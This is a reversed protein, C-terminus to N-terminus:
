KSFKEKLISDLKTGKSNVKIKKNPIDENELDEGEEESMDDFHSDDFADMNFVREPKKRKRVSKSVPSTEIGLGIGTELSVSEPDFNENKDFETEDVLTNYFYKSLQEDNNLTNEDSEELLGVGQGQLLKRPVSKRGKRPSKSDPSSLVQEVSSSDDMENHVRGSSMENLFNVAQEEMDETSEDLGHKVKKHRNLNGKLTFTSGCFCSYPKTDNHMHLHGQLNHLRGFQKGCFKCQFPKTKSHVVQHAKLTQPQTFTKGCVECKFARTANHILVHRMMNAKQNFSRGCIDCAFPKQGSHTFQHAKLHHEKMFDMGCETCIYPRSGEHTIMHDKLQSPYRFVKGCYKCILEERKEHLVLHLKLAKVSDFEEGCEDCKEIDSNHKEKHTRLESPYAFGRGCIDCIYPRSELHVTQHRKLHSIQTFEKGCITCVHPKINDHTLMHTNLHSLQKFYKGCVMCLHPKIGNHDLIHTILNHKTTYSKSCLQCQWRKQEGNQILQSDLIQVNIEMRDLNKHLEEDNDAEIAKLKEMVHYYTKKQETKSKTDEDDSPDEPVIDEYTNQGKKFNLSMIGGSMLDTPTLHEINNQSKKTVISVTVVTGTHGVSTTMVAPAAAKNFSPSTIAFPHLKQQLKKMEPSMQSTESENDYIHEVSAYISDNSKPLFEDHFEEESTVADEQKIQVFTPKKGKRKRSAKGDKDFDTTFSDDIEPGQYVLPDNNLLNNKLSTYEEDWVNVSEFKEATARIFNDSEPNDLDQNEGSSYSFRKKDTEEHDESVVSPSVESSIQSKIDELNPIFTADKDIELVDVGIDPRVDTQATLKRPGTCIRGLLTFKVTKPIDLSKNVSPVSTAEINLHNVNSTISDKCITMFNRQNQLININKIYMRRIDQHSELKLDNMEEKQLKNVLCTTQGDKDTIKSLVPSTTQHTRTSNPLTINESYLLPVDNDDTECDEQPNGDEDEM